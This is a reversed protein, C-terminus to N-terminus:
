EQNLEHMCEMWNFPIRNYLNTGKKKKKAVTETVAWDARIWVSFLFLSAPHARLLERRFVLPNESSLAHQRDATHAGIQNHATTYLHTTAPNGSTGRFTSPQTDLTPAVHLLSKRASLWEHQPFPRRVHWKRDAKRKKEIAKKESQRNRIQSM